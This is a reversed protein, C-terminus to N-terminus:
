RARSLRRAIVGFAILAGGLLAILGLDLGTFALTAGPANASPASSTGPAQGASAGTGLVACLQPNYAQCTATSRRVVPVAAAAPVVERKSVRPTARPSAAPPSSPQVFAAVPAATPKVRAPQRTSVGPAALVAAVLAVLAAASAARQGPSGPRRTGRLARIWAVARGPGLAALAAWLSIWRRGSYRALFAQVVDPDLHTGAEQHLVEIARQHPAAPRYPRTSVIADFTDAVAVIRAGIPIEDLALGDPYGAGDVREHHHRVIATLEPDGLCSVMDAGLEAHRKVLEFEADTLRDPKDLVARPVRLKGVDHVAAAAQIKTAQEAPLGLADAIVAAHRAVRRSHGITYADQGEVAQALGRLARAREEVSAPNQPETQRLGELLETANALRREVWLRRLWGWLLLESFMIDAGGGRRKWYASGLFAAGLSLILALALGLWASSIVGDGSLWWVVAIPMVAVAATVLVAQPLYRMAGPTTHDSVARAREGFASV